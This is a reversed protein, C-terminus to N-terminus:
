KSSSAIIQQLILNPWVLIVPENQKKSRDLIIPCYKKEPKKQLSEDKILQRRKFYHCPGCTSLDKVNANERVQLNAGIFWFQSVVLIQWVQTLIIFIAIALLMMHQCFCERIESARESIKKCSRYRATNDSVISSTIDKVGLSPSLQVSTLHLPFSLVAWSKVTTGMGNSINSLSM